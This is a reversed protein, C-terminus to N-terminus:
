LYRFIISQKEIQLYTKLSYLIMNLLHKCCIYIVKDFNQKISYGSSVKSIQSGQNRCNPVAILTLKFVVQARKKTNRNKNINLYFFNQNMFRVIDILYLFICLKYQM